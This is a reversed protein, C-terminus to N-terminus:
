ASYWAIETLAFKELYVVSYMEIAINPLHSVVLCKQM